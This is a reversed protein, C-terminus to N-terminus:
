RLAQALLMKEEMDYCDPDIRLWRELSRTPPIYDMTRVGRIECSIKYQGTEEGNEVLHRYYDFKAPLKDIDICSALKITILPHGRWSCKIGHILEKPLDLEGRYIENYAMEQTINTKYPRNDITLVDIEILNRMKGRREGGFTHERAFASTSAKSSISTRTMAELLRKERLEYESLNDRKTNNAQMTARKQSSLPTTDPPLPPTSQRKNSMKTKEDM